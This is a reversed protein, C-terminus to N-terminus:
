YEYLLKKVKEYSKPFIKYYERDRVAVCVCKGVERAGFREVFYKYISLQWTVYDRKFVGKKIDYIDLKGGPTEEVIIDVASAYRSFDSVLTESYVAAPRVVYQRLFTDTIWKVGPHVSGANGTNIWRQVAHHVHVGEERHEELFEQPMRQGLKKSILGTVGSLRKGKLYYEHKEEDFEVKPALILRV